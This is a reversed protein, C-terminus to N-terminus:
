NTWPEGDGNGSIHDMGREGECVCVYGSMKPNKISMHRVYLLHLLRFHVAGYAKIYSYGWSVVM